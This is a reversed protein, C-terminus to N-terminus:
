LMRLGAPSAQCLAVRSDMAMTQGLRSFEPMSMMRRPEARLGIGSRKVTAQESSQLEGHCEGM